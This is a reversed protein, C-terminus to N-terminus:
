SLEKMGIHIIGLYYKIPYNKFFISIFLLFIKAYIDHLLFIFSFVLAVLGNIMVLIWSINNDRFYYTYKEDARKLCYYLNKSIIGYLYFFTYIPFIFRKFTFFFKDNEEDNDNDNNDNIFYFGDEFLLKYIRGIPCCDSYFSSNRKCFYCIIAECLPCCSTINDKDSSYFYLNDFKCYFLKANNGYKKLMRKQWANFKTCSKLKQGEYDLKFINETNKPDNEVLTIDSDNEM